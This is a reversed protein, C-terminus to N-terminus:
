MCHVLVEGIVSFEHTAYKGVPNEAEIRYRTSEDDLSASLISYTSKVQFAEANKSWKVNHPDIVQDDRFWTVEPLPKGRTCCTLAVNNGEM